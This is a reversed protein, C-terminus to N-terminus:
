INNIAEVMQDFLPHGDLVRAFNKEAYSATQKHPLSHAVLDAMANIAGWATGQFKTIDPAAYCVYYAAKCAEANRVQLETPKKEKPDFIGNLITKLQNDEIKKKAMAAGYETLDAIYRVNMGLAEQAESMRAMINTTHRMSFCRKATQLAVNLTNNCVVRIPTILMKVSGSGDYTNTFVLFLETEDGVLEFTPLRLSMWIRKGGDLSGATDYLVEKGFQRLYEEAVDRVIMFGDKPQVVAYRGKVGSGLMSGDVDRVIAFSDVQEYSFCDGLKTVSGDSAIFPTDDTFEAGIDKYTKMVRRADNNYAKRFLPMKDANWNLGGAVITELWTAPHDVFTEQHHWARDGAFQPVFMMKEILAAM